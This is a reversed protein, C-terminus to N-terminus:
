IAIFNGQIHKGLTSEVILRKLHANEDRLQHLQQIGTACLM